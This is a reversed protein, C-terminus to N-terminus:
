YKWLINKASVFESRPFIPVCHAFYPNLEYKIQNVKSYTSSKKEIDM